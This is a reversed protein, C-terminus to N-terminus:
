CLPNEGLSAPSTRYKTKPSEGQQTAEFTSSFSVKMSYRVFLSAPSYFSLTDHEVRM